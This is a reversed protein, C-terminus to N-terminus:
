RTNTDKGTASNRGPEVSIIEAEGIDHGEWLAFRVGPRLWNQVLDANLFKISIEQSSGGPELGFGREDLLLACDYGQDRQDDFFVVCKYRIPPIAPRGRGKGVPFLRVRAVADAKLGIKHNMM